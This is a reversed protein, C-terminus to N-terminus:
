SNNNFKNGKYNEQVTLNADPQCNLDANTEPEETLDDGTITELIADIKNARSVKKSSKGPIVDLSVVGSTSAGRKRRNGIERSPTKASANSQQLEREALTDANCELATEDLGAEIVIAQHIRRKWNIGVVM